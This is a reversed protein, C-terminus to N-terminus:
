PRGAASEQAAPNGSQRAPPSALGESRRQSAQRAALAVLTTPAPRSCSRRNEDKVLRRSAQITNALRRQAVEHAALAGRGLRAKKSASGASPRTATRGCRAAREHGSRRSPVGCADSAFAPRRRQFLGKELQHIALSETTELRDWTSSVKPLSSRSDEPSAARQRDHDQKGQHHVRQEGQKRGPPATRVPGRARSRPPPPGPRITRAVIQTGSM